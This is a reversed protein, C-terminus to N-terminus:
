GSGTPASRSPGKVIAQLCRRAWQEVPAARVTAALRAARARRIAPETHVAQYIGDAVSAADSGDVVVAHPGLEIAAGAGGGVVLTADRGDALVAFEKAILNMGDRVPTVVAVDCALLHAAVLRRSLRETILRLVPRRDRRRHRINIADAQERVREGLTRYTPVGSRSPAAVQVFQVDDVDLRRHELLQDFAALREGTGKTYDLRDAGVLLLNGGTDRRLQEARTRV